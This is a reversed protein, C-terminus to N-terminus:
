AAVRKERRGALIRLLEGRSPGPPVWAEHTGAVEMIRDIIGPRAMLEHPPTLLSVIELAARFLGADYRMAVFLANQPDAPRPAPRGEIAAKVQASRARDFQVTSLYWPTLRKETMSDHALTLAPPDDLHERVVDATGAAHMLGMTIGRGGIPNTCAWSDGVSVIGTAVAAGDVVFRRYRDAIGGMSLIGSIPEGDLWHEHLPCAAILATWYEPNRIEKLAEDGSSVFVTVSWTHSDGPLTLLSFSPFHTALPARSRPVAGNRSRFFRSYYIFGSKETKEIPRRAGIAQLWDPLKSRRGM